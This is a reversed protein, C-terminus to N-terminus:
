RIGRLSNAVQKMMDAYHPIDRYLITAYNNDYNIGFLELAARERQAEAFQKRLRELLRRETNPIHEGSHLRVDIIHANHAILQKQDSSFRWGRKQLEALLRSLRRLGYANLVPMNEAVMNYEHLLQDTGLAGVSRYSMTQKKALGM